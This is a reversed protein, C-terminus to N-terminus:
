KSEMTIQAAFILDYSEIICKFNSLLGLYM